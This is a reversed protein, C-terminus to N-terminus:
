AEPRSLVDAPSADQLIHSAQQRWIAPYSGFEQELSILQDLFVRCLHLKVEDPMVNKVGKFINRRSSEEFLSIDPAIQLFNCLRGMLGEPDHEIEDFFCILMQEDPYYQRWSDLTLRYNSLRMSPPHDLIDIMAQPSLRDFQKRGSKIYSLMFHSWSREVPNRMFFILKADPAASHVSAIRAISLGTFSQASKKLLLLMQEHM